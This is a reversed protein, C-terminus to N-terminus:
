NWGDNQKYLGPYNDIQTKPIPYYYRGAAVNSVQTGNPNNYRNFMDIIDDQWTNYRVEDFWRVGEMALELRRERRIYEMATDANVGTPVLDVDARARIENVLNLADSIQGKNVLIEAYLLMMDEIRLIPFNIGWQDYRTMGSEPTYSLGLAARKQYTDLFKYYFSRTYTDYDGEGYNLVEETNSYDNTFNNGYAEYGNLVTWDFGRQDKDGTTWDVTYEYQLTKEVWISNGFIYINSTRGYYSEPIDPSMNFIAPNGYSGPAYQIAFISYANNGGMMFQRRWENINPAWYDGTSQAYDLVEKIKTEALDQASADNLPFGAKQMYLRGLMAKAAMRDARVTASKSYNYQIIDGPLPLNEAITLDAIAQAYVQEPTSQGIEKSETVTIPKTILPVNGYLRALEFYSWGRLFHAEQSLQDRLSVEDTDSPYEVTDVYAIAENAANIVQYLIEWTSSIYSNTADARFTGIESYERFGNPMPDVWTNDSRVESLHLYLANSLDRLRSYAGMVLQEIERPTSYEGSVMKDRPTEDLSCSSVTLVALGTIFLTKFKLINKLKM